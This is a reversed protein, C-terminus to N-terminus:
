GRLGFPGVHFALVPGGIMPLHQEPLFFLHEPAPSPSLQCEASEPTSCSRIDKQPMLLAQLPFKSFIVWDSLTPPRRVAKGAGPIRQPPQTQPMVLRRKKKERDTGKRVAESMQPFPSSPCNLSNVPVVRDTCSGDTTNTPTTKERSIVSIHSQACNVAPAM